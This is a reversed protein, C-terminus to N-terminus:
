VMDAGATPRSVGQRAAIARRYRVFGLAGWIGIVVYGLAQAVLIFAIADAGGQATVARTVLDKGGSQMSACAAVVMSVALSVVLM